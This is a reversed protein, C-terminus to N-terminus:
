NERKRPLINVQLNQSAKSFHTQQLNKCFRCLFCKSLSIAEDDEYRISVTRCEHQHLLVRCGTSIFFIVQIQPGLGHKLCIGSCSKMWQCTHFHSFFVKWLDLNCSPWIQKFYTVSLFGRHKKVNKQPKPISGLEMWDTDLLKFIIRCRLVQANKLYEYAHKM